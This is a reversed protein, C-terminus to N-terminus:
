LDIFFLIWILLAIFFTSLALQKLLPDYAKPTKIKMVQLGHFVLPLLVLMSFPHELAWDIGMGLLLFLGSALILSFHYIKANQSGMRVVLTNKQFNKDNTIDRMNNLNLVATSLLGMATGLFFVSYQLSQTQLYFSGMVSVWGFFLFVFVDGWGAYGFASKGVTYQIAAWVAGIALLIFLLSIMLKESGLAVYILLGACCLSIVAAVLIGKKLAAPSLLGQQLVREPGLRAENDTGKVGDGYDNAFNSIIQFLIATILSLVFVSESFLGSKIAMANGSIIGAVSVPLTRLRAASLWIKLSTSM